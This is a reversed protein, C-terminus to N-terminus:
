RTLVLKMNKGWRYAGDSLRVKIRDIIVTDGAKSRDVIGVRIAPSLTDGICYENLYDTVPILNGVSDEFISREVYTFSFGEVKAPAGSTDRATLGTVILDDFQGQPVPGDSVTSNGLYVPVPPPAPPRKKTKDKQNQASATFLVGALVAACGIAFVRKM